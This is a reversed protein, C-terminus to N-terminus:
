NYQLVSLIRRLWVQSLLEDPHIGDRFHKFSISRRINHGQSKRYHVLDLRFVPSRVNFRSNTQRIFDNLLDVRETVQLDTDHLDSPRPVKKAIYWHEISYYPIELFLIQVHSFGALASYFKSITESVQRFCEESTNHRLFLEKRVKRTIDCTGFWILLTVPGQDGSLIHTNQQLWYFGQSLSFGPQAIVRVNQTQDLFPRLYNGKSDSFLIVKRNYAYHFPRELYKTLKSNSM